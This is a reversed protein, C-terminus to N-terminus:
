HTIPTVQNTLRKNPHIKKETNHHQIKHLMKLSWHLWNEIKPKRCLSHILIVMSCQLSAQVLHSTMLVMIIHYLLVLVVVVLKCTKIM